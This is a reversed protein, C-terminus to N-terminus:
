AAQSTRGRDGTFVGGDRLGAVWTSTEEPGAELKVYSVNAHHQALELVFAPSLCTGLIVCMRFWWRAAFADAIQGFHHLLHGVHSMASTPAAVVVGSAGSGAMSRALEVSTHTAESGVGILVPVRDAAADLIVEALAVRERATLKGVEGALGFCLLGSAGSDVAFEVVQRM